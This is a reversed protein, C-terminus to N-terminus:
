PYLRDLREGVAAYVRKRKVKLTPTLLGAEVTLPEAFVEFEKITEYRALQGNVREVRERVLSRLADEHGGEVVGQTALWAATAGADLWVGAVLYKKGEGYVVLHEIFPDGAFRVEINAPAINKGGATVLIDKKRDIIQLFGDDTFRGIDGTKFWGDDTFAEATAAPDKHYGAFVNPGKALIEGDDALRLEVSRLPKGVSDFRYADPRNLTLTPACETLGYGEILLLGAEEFLEKVALELGAGGSLCFRLRGGTAEVLKKRRAEPTAEALADKAVKDWIAPVSMFVTPAVRPFDQMVMAPASLYSTWGLTNGICAEGFGFVHSMPLWLLDTAGQEVSPANSVLWDAGNVAVMRHTLPVGKPNGSTGSTYLMLAPQDLSVAHMMREFEGPKTERRAAGEALVDAYRMVRADIDTASPADQGQARRSAAVAHADVGEDLLVIRRVAALRPWVDFVRELLAATAVFLVTADSHELVYGAQEATSSAYIPVMVAGRAEIALAATMWAVSNPAFIAARQGVDCVSALSLAVHRLQDAFEGWTVPRWAGGDAPATDDMPVMFRPEDALEALRDFVARPAIRPELFPTVNM